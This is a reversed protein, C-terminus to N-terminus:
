ILSHHQVTILSHHQLYEIAKQLIEVNDDAFGIITNCKICLLERVKGTRHDHDVSLTQEQQQGCIACKHNQMEFLMRYQNLTLGYKKRTQLITNKKHNCSKCHSRYGNEKGGRKDFNDITQEKDCNRCFKTKM